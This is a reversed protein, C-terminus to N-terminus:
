DSQGLRLATGLFAAFAASRARAAGGRKRGPVAKPNAYTLDAAGEPDARVSVSVSRLNPILRSIAM